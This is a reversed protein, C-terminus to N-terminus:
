APGDRTIPKRFLWNFAFQTWSWLGRNAWRPLHRWPVTGPAVHSSPIVVPSYGAGWYRSGRAEAFSPGAFDLSGGVVVDFRTDIRSLADFERTVLEVLQRRQWAGSELDDAHLRLLEEMDIGNPECDLGLSRAWPVFNDPIVLHAEHGARVLALALAVGPQVDGRSGHFAILVRM